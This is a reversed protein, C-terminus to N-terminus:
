SSTGEEDEKYEDIDEFTLFKENLSNLMDLKFQGSFSLEFEDRAEEVLEHLLVVENHPIGELAIRLATGTESDPGCYNYVLMQLTHIQDDNVLILKM